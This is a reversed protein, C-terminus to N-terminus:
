QKLLHKQYAYSASVLTNSLMAKEELAVPALGYAQGVRDPRPQGIADGIRARRLMKRADPTDSLPERRAEATVSPKTDSKPPPHHTKGNHNENQEKKAVM